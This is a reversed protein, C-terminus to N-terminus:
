FNIVNNQRFYAKNRNGIYQLSFIEEHVFYLVLGGFQRIFRDRIRINPREIFPTMKWKPENIDLMNWDVVVNKWYRETM